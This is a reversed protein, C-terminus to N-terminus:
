LISILCNVVTPHQHSILHMMEQEQLYKRPPRFHVEYMDNCLPPVLECFVKSLMQNREAIM